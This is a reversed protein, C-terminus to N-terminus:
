NYIGGNKPICSHPYQCGNDDVGGDCYMENEGCDIPCSIPCEEGDNGVESCLPTLTYRDPVIKGRLEKFAYM